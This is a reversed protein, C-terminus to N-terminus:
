IESKESGPAVSGDALSVIFVRNAPQIEGLDRKPKVGAIAGGVLIAVVMSSYTLRQAIKSLDNLYALGALVALVCWDFFLM